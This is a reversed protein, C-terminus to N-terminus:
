GNLLNKYGDISEREKSLMFEMLKESYYTIFFLSSCIEILRKNSLM